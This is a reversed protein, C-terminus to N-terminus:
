QSADATAAIAARRRALFRGVVFWGVLGWFLGVLVFGPAFRSLSSWIFLLIVELIGFGAAWLMARRFSRAFVGSLLGGVGAFSLSMGLFMAFAQM